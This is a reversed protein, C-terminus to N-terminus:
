IYCLSLSKVYLLLSPLFPFFKLPSLVFPPPVCVCIETRNVGKKEIKLDSVFVFLFLSWSHQFKGKRHFLFVCFSFFLCIIFTQIYYIGLYSFTEFFFFFGRLTLSEHVKHWGRPIYLLKSVVSNFLTKWERKDIWHQRMRWKEFVHMTVFLGQSHYIKCLNTLCFNKCLSQYM